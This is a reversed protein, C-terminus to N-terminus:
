QTGGVTAMAALSLADYQKTLAELEEWTATDLKGGYLRDVAAVLRECATFSGVVLAVADPFHERFCEVAFAIVDGETDFGPYLMGARWTRHSTEAKNLATVQSPTLPHKLEVRKYEGNDYGILRGYYHTAGFSLGQFTSIELTVIHNTM